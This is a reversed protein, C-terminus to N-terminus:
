GAILLYFYDFSREEDFQCLESGLQMGKDRVETGATSESFTFKEFVNKFEELFADEIDAKEPVYEVEVSEVIQLLLLM